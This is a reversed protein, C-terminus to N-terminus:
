LILGLSHRALARVRVRPRSAARTGAVSAASDAATGLVETAARVLGARRCCVLVAAAVAAVATAAAAAALENQVAACLSAQRLEPVRTRFM